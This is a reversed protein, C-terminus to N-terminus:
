KKKDSEPAPPMKEMESNLEKRFEPLIPVDDMADEGSKSKVEHGACLFAAQTKLRQVETLRLKVMRTSTSRRHTGALQELELRAANFQDATMRARNLEAFQAEMKALKSSLIQLDASQSGGGSDCAVRRDIYARVDPSLIVTRPGVPIARSAFWTIGSILIALIGLEWYSLKLTQNRWRM